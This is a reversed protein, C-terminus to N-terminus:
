DNGTGGDLYNGTGATCSRKTMAHPMHTHPMGVSAERLGEGHTHPM